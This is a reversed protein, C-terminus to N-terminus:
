AFTAERLSGRLAGGEFSVNERGIRGPPRPRGGEEKNQARLEIMTIVAGYGIALLWGGFM